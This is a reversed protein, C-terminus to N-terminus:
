QAPLGYWVVSAGVLNQMKCAARAKDRAGQRAGERLLTCTYRDIDRDTVDWLCVALSPCLASLYSIPAGYPAACSYMGSDAGHGAHLKGSSCGVLLTHPMPLPASSGVVDRPLFLEGSGHGCYVYLAHSTILSAATAPSLGGQSGAVGKVRAGWEKGVQALVPLLTAQTGDLDGSPNVAYYLSPPPRAPTALCTGYQVLSSLLSTAGGEAHGGAADQLSSLALGAALLGGLGVQRACMHPSLAACSEWPLAHLSPSLLLAHCAAQSASAAQAQQQQLAHLWPPPPATSDYTPLTWGSEGGGEASLRPLIVDLLDQKKMPPAQIGLQVALARLETLKMGQVERAGLPQRTGAQVGVERAGGGGSSGSSGGQQLTSWVPTLVSTSLGELLQKMRADLKAREGWWAEAEAAKGEGRVRLIAHLTGEGVARQLLPAPADEGVGGGGGQAAAQAEAVAQASVGRSMVEASAAHISKLQCLSSSLAAACSPPLTVASGPGGGTWMAAVLALGGWAPPRGVAALALTPHMPYLALPLLMGQGGSAPPPLLSCPDYCLCLLAVADMETRAPLSPSPYLMAQTCSLLTASAQLVRGGGTGAGAWAAACLAYARKRMYQLSSWDCTSGAAAAVLVPQLPSSGAGGGQAGGTAALLLTSVEWWPMCALTSPLSLLHLPSPSCPVRGQSLYALVAERGALEM